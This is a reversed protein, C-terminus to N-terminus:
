VALSVYIAAQEDPTLWYSEKERNVYLAPYPSDYEMFLKHYKALDEVKEVVPVVVKATVPYKAVFDKHRKDDEGCYTIKM